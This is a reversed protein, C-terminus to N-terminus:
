NRTSVYMPYPPGMKLRIQAEARTGPAKFFVCFYISYQGIYRYNNIRHNGPASALPPAGSHQVSTTSFQRRRMPRVSLRKRFRELIYASAPVLLLTRCAHRSSLISLSLSIMPALFCTLFCADALAVGVATSDLWM